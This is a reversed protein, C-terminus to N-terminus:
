RIHRSASAFSTGDLRLDFALEPEIGSKIVEPEQECLQEQATETEDPASYTQRRVDLLSRLATGRVERDKDRVLEALQRLFVPDGIRGMARAAAIRFQPNDAVAMSCIEEDIGREGLLHLGVLCNGAVRGSGDQLYRYLLSRAAPTNVGWLSEVATARLRNDSRKLQRETWHATRIRKGLFLTARSCLWPDPSDVLHSMLPVLRTGCSGDDLVEITRGGRMGVYAQHNLGFRDPLMRALRIDFAPDVAFLKSFINLAVTPERAPESIREFVMPERLLLTALLRFAVCMEATNGLHRLAALAFETKHERAMRRILQACLPNGNFESVARDLWRDILAQQLQM